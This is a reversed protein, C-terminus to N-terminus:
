AGSFKWAGALCFFCSNPPVSGKNYEMRGPTILPCCIKDLLRQHKLFLKFREVSLESKKEIQVLLFCWNGSARQSVRGNPMKKDGASEEVRQREGGLAREPNEFCKSLVSFDHLYMDFNASLSYRDMHRNFDIFIKIPCIVFDFVQKMLLATMPVSALKAFVKDSMLAAPTIVLRRFLPKAPFFGQM